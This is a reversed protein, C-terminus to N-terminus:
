ADTTERAREANELGTALGRLAKRMAAPDNLATAERAARAFYRLTAHLRAAEVAHLEGGLFELTRDSLEIQGEEDLTGYATRQIYLAELGHRLHDELKPNAIELATVTLKVTPTGGAEADSVVETRETARLEAIAVVRRGQDRYLDAIHPQLGDEADSGLKTNLKANPM